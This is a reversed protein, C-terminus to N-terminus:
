QQNFTGQLVFQIIFSRGIEIIPSNHIKPPCDIRPPCAEAVSTRRGRPPLAEGFWGPYQIVKPKDGLKYSVGDKIVYTRRPMVVEEIFKCNKFFHFVSIENIYSSGSLNVRRLKPLALSLSNIGFGVIDIIQHFSLDLEELFPFSDAIIILDSKFISAVHSCILSTLTKIKRGLVRLGNAPITPRNSINISKLPLQLIAIQYLIADLNGRFRTLDISTLNPFRRLLSPVFPATQTSITFHIKQRGTLALLQKSVASLSQLHLCRNNGDDDGDNLLAFISEWCDNPLIIEEAM